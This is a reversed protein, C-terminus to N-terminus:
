KAAFLRIMEDITLANLDSGSIKALEHAFEVIQPPMLYTERLMEVKNFVDRILGIDLLKGDGLLAVRNIYGPLLYLHHTIILVTRGEGNLRQIMEMIRWSGQMDQGTTPEDFIVVEPEMALVAAVAVRERDGKSLALPHEDKVDLLAMDRLANEVRREIESKDDLQNVPGFGVEEEVSKCFMQADPNQYIFGIRQALGSTTYDLVNKGFVTVEGSTPKLLRVFHKVLTSKGGGNQGIIAMCEGSHVDMSVGTLAQTGDPYTFHLDRASIVPAQGEDGCPDADPYTQPMFKVEPWLVKMQDVADPLLVPLKKVPHITESFRAYFDAVQPLRVAERMAVDMTRFFEKPTKDSVVKGDDMLLVRDAYEAVRESNHTVLVVTMKYEKNLKRIISFVEEVGIPDLQSTPEDLVMVKPRLAVAAAIALRQKQGGSLMAPHKTEYGKLRVLELVERIRVDMEEPPVKVNEMGFAIEDVVSNTVLQMEPDQLVMGINQALEAVSLDLTDKGLVTVSGYFKGGFFNPIIGNLALCLTTKGSGSAGMVAVFEGENITFNIDRLVLPDAIDYRYSLDEVNIIESV